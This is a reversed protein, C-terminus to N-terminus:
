FRVSLGLTPYLPFLKAENFTATWKLRSDFDNRLEWVFPDLIGYGNLLRLTAQFQWGWWTFRHLVRFELRQFGPLRSGNLDILEAPEFGSERLIKPTISPSQDSALVGLAGLMWQDDLAYWLSMQLEHRRDFRPTYPNGDNIEAFTNTARSLNYSISGTLNGARKRVSLKIGYVEGKGYLIVDKLDRTLALSTDFGFEHLNHTTRFYAETSVSFSTEWFDKIAGVSIQLSTSPKFKDTSPYWFVTPYFLFVGSNRYPHMFQNISTLSSYFRLRDNLSVLISIRPDVGSFSGEGSTFSTARMGLEATVDPLVRWQDQVYVSLEWSPLGDISLEGLQSSYQDINGAIRHHIAEFGGRFVHEEDYYHEAHARVVFDEIRYSSAFISPEPMFVDGVLLHNVDFSYDTYAASANIFLSPSAISIWRLIMASNEWSMHNNLFEDTGNVTNSYSEKAYYGTFFLRNSGSLRNSLKAILESSTQSTPTLGNRSNPLFSDPYGRRASVMFSTNSTVPGGLTLHSSFSGIGASGSLGDMGGERMLVDLIGGVRGGYNPPIGGPRTQVDYLAEANFTSLVGGLHAPNYIRVGDIMYQNQDTPTSPIFIGSAYGETTSFSTGYGEIVVEPMLIEDQHVLLDIILSPSDSLDFTMSTTTYGLSRVEIRYVGIPVRRFSYFGYRNTPITRFVTTDLKSPEVSYLIVQADAVDEGTVADKVSGSVTGYFPRRSTTRKGLIFQHGRKTWTLGTGELIRTLLDEVQCEDCRLSVAFSDVDSDVYAIPVGYRLVLTDCVSHLSAAEFNVTINRKSDQARSGLFLFFFPLVSICYTRITRM